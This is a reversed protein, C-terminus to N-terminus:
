LFSTSAVSWAFFDDGTALFDDYDVTRPLTTSWGGRKEDTGCVVFLGIGDLQESPIIEFAPLLDASCTIPVEPLARRLAQQLRHEDHADAPSHLLGIAIAEPRLKKVAAVAKAIAERTLAEVVEGGAGRRCAVGVRLRRPVPPVARHPDLAYLDVREQRGIEILDECGSNTVFM